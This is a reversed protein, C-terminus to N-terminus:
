ASELKKQRQKKKPTKYIDNIRKELNTYDQNLFVRNCENIWDDLINESDNQKKMQKVEM